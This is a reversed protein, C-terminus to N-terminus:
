GTTTIRGEGGEPYDAATIAGGLDDALYGALAQQYSVGVSTFPLGRFPYVDGGRASFDNTAISVGPGDVVAGATVIPTGDDLVVETVRAGPTTVTGDEATVQAAGAPDYTFRFGAVQAFRGDAVPVQSVANELLEKFQARPVDPVVAVFNAFPAVSFTDLESVPGAPILSNNRIGGGNQLAVQPATVGFEAAGDQGADLLADALLNGLNTEQTRVGPERRGELAVESRALVSAALDATFATVPEVVEAQVQPDPAVADAEVGSVRVPGSAPDVATVAGAADFTVTLRGIYKYDGATTVVPVTRGTSDAVQIPYTLPQGTAPDVSVADGPVLPTGPNALLEDGGGAIAVDVDRLQAVLARDEEVNQLHSILVIKDVGDATLEDVAKQVSGLVDQGVVVGRPSSISALAPTTAGVVGIRQGAEEVVTSPAIRGAEALEALRPEASVDLNSSLFPVGSDFGSIFDALLDPGFDFEHNGIALADYGVADLGISDYFPPGKEQSAAFQPGALYNDGSSLTLVGSDPASTASAQLSRALAVFRAIGGFNADAPAGLLQSEGDNNHLITLTFGQDPPADPIAAAAPTAALVATASVAVATAAGLAGRRVSPHPV